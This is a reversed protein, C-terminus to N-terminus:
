LPAVSGVRSAMTTAWDISKHNLRLISRSADLYHRDAAVATVSSALWMLADAVAHFASLTVSCGEYM